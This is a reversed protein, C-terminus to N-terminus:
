ITTCIIEWLCQLIMHVYACLKSRKKLKLNSSYKTSSKPFTGYSASIGVVTDSRLFKM